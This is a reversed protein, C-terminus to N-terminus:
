DLVSDDKYSSPCDPLEYGPDPHGRPLQPPERDVLPTLPPPQGGKDGSEQRAGPGAPDSGSSPCSRM